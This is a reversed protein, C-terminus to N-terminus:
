LASMCGRVPLFLFNQVLLFSHPARMVAKVRESLLRLATTPPRRDSAGGAAAKFAFRVRVKITCDM